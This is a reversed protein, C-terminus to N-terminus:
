PWFSSVAGSTRCAKYSCFSQAKRSLLSLVTWSGSISPMAEFSLLELTWAVMVQFRVLMDTGASQDHEM